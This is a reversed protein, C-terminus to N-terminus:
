WRLRDIFTEDTIFNLDMCMDEPSYGMAIALFQSYRLVPINYEHGFKDKIELQRLDLQLHSFPCANVICDAEAIHLLKAYTMELSKDLLTSRM